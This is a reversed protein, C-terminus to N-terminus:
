DLDYAPDGGADQMTVDDIWTMAARAAPWGITTVALVAVHLLEERTVGAALAQRVASHVAGEHRSGIAIGLKALRRAKEDLPGGHNHCAEGLRTFAEWIEPIRDNIDAVQEPIEKTSM